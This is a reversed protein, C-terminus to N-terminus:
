NAGDQEALLKNEIEMLKTRLVVNNKMEYYTLFSVAAVQFATLYALTGNFPRTIKRLFNFMVKPGDSLDPIRYTSYRNAFMLSSAPGLVMPYAVGLAMQLATSKVEYCVPCVDNKMLLMQTSILHRHFLATLLGPMVSIPIVSSLYGYTGLKLKFRYHKNILMGSIASLGGLIAPTYRLAWTDSTNEWNTVIDWVYSTAELEDMVVADKPVEKAKMLAM